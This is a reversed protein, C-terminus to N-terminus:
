TRGLGGGPRRGGGDAVVNAPDLTDMSLKRASDMGAAKARDSHCAACYQKLFARQEDDGIASPATRASPQAPRSSAQAPPTRPGAQASTVVVACVVALATFVSPREHARPQPRAPSGQELSWYPGAM